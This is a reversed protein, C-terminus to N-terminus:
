DAVVILLGVRVVLFPMLVWFYRLDFYKKKEDPDM